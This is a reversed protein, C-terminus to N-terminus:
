RCNKKVEGGVLELISGYRPFREFNSGHCKPCRPPATDGEVEWSCDACQHIHTKVGHIPPDVLTAFRSVDSDFNAVPM